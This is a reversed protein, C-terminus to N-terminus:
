ENVSTILALSHLSLAQVLCFTPGGGWASLWMFIHIHKIFAKLTMNEM